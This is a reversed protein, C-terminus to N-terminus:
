RQGAAPVYGEQLGEAHSVKAKQQGRSGGPQQPNLTLLHFEKTLYAPDQGRVQGNPPCMMHGAAEGPPPPQQHFFNLEKKPQRQPCFM